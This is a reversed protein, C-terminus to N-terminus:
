ELKKVIEYIRTKQHLVDSCMFNQEPTYSGKAIVSFEMKERTLCDEFIELTKANRETCAILAIAQPNKNFILSLKKCLPMILTHEYVIDAGFIYSIDSYKFVYKDDCWDLKDVLIDCASKSRHVVPFDGNINPPGNEAIFDLDHTNVSPNFNLDVNFNVTKLVEKHSDTLIYTKPCSSKLLHLGVFGAGCGLEIINRNKLDDIKHTLLWDTLYLAGQWSTLGTTGNGFIENEELLTVICDDQFYNRTISKFIFKPVNQGNDAKECLAELNSSVSDLCQKLLSQVWVIVDKLHYRAIPFKNLHNNVFPDEILSMFNEKDMNQLIM